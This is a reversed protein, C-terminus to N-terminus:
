QHNCIWYNYDDVLQQNPKGKVKELEALPVEIRGRGSEVKCLLGYTEDCWHDDEFGNLAHVKVMESIREFDSEPAWTATIPFILNAVLHKHYIRLSAEDVNPLLDDRTLGFVARIRDDQDKMSLPPTVIRTPQELIVAGGSDPELDDEGLQMEEFDLGDRECRSRYVPHMSALTQQNWRILYCPPNGAEVKIIKGAWGGLPIDPFDPDKVGSRVRVLCDVSFKAPADTKRSM